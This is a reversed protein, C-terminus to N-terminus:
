NGSNCVFPMRLRIAMLLAAMLPPVMEGAPRSFVRRIWCIAMSFLSGTTVKAAACLAVVNVDDFAEAAQLRSRGSLAVPGTGM